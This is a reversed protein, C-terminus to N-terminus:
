RKGVKQNDGPGRLPAVELLLLSLRDRKAETTQAIELGKKVQGPRAAKAVGEMDRAQDRDLIVINSSLQITKIIFFFYEPFFNLIGNEM